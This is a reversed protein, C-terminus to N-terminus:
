RIGMPAAGLGVTAGLAGVAKKEADRAQRLEELALKYATPDANRKEANFAIARKYADATAAKAQDAAEILAQMDTTSAMQRAVLGSRAAQPEAAATSTPPTPMEGAPARSEATMKRLLALAEDKSSARGVKMGAWTIEGTEDNWGFDTSGAVRGVKGGLLSDAVGRAASTYYKATEPDGSENATKALASLSSLTKIAVESDKVGRVPKGDDGLLPKFTGDRLSVIGYRGANDVQLSLGQNRLSAMTTGIQWQAVKERSARDEGALKERSAIEAKVRDMINGSRLEEMEKELGFRQTMEPQTIETSIAKRKELDIENLKPQYELALDQAYRADGRRLESLTQDRQLALSNRHTELDRLLGARHEEGAATELAAAGGALARGILGAM